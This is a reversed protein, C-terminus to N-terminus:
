KMEGKKRCYKMVDFKNYRKPNIQGYYNVETEESEHICYLEKKGLRPIAIVTEGTVTDTVHYNGNGDQEWWFEKFPNKKM